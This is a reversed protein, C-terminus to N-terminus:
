EAPSIFTPDGTDNRVVSAYAYFTGNVGHVRVVAADLPGAQYHSFIDNFQRYSRAAIETVFGGREQGSSDYLGLWVVVVRDHPNSIGVNTRNGGVGSLGYLLQESELRDIKVSPVSQGFEGGETVNYIRSRAAIRASADDWTVRVIGGGETVGFWEQLADRVDIVEMPSLPFTMTAPAANQRHFTLTTLVPAAEADRSLNSVVIETRWQSDNAGPGRYTAPIFIEGAFAASTMFATLIIPAIKM